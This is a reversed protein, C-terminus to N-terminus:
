SQSSAQLEVYITWLECIFEEALVEPDTEKNIVFCLINPHKELFKRRGAEGSKVQFDLPGCDTEYSIDYGNRDKWSNAEVRSVPKTATPLMDGEILTIVVALATKEAYEGRRKAKSEGLRSISKKRQHLAPGRREAIDRRADPGRSKKCPLLSRCGNRGPYSNPTHRTALTKEKKHQSRYVM